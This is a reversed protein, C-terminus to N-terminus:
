FISVCWNTVILTLTQSIILHNALPFYFLFHFFSLFFLPLVSAKLSPAQVPAQLPSATRHFKVLINWANPHRDVSLGTVQFPKLCPDFRFLSDESNVFHKSWHIAKEGLHGVFCGSELLLPSSPGLVWFSVLDKPKKGLHPLWLPIKIIPWLTVLWSNTNLLTKRPFCELWHCM